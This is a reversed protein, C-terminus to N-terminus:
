SLAKAKLADFEAQTIAGSDLLAKAHSIEAAAGGGGSGATERVYADFEAKAAVQQKAAREAMGGGRVLLYIFVGLYPLFIVFISWLAKAGGSTEHDRFLDSFVTILLWFWIIWMFLVFMTWLVEGLAYDAALM